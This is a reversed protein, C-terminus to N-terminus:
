RQQPCARQLLNRLMRGLPTARIEVLIQDESVAGGTDIALATIRHVGPSLKTTHLNRGTGLLGDRDSTWSVSEHELIGDERDHVSSQLIVMSGQLFEQGSKPQVVALSPAKNPNPVVLGGVEAWRTNLGDSALVRIRGNQSPALYKTDFTARTARQRIALPAWIRRGQRDFGPSYQAAYVLTDLDVDTGAWVVEEVGDLVDGPRPSSIAVQPANPTRQIRASVGTSEVLRITRIAQAKSFTVAFPVSDILSGTELEFSPAVGIRELVQGSANLAEVFVTPNAIAPSATAYRPFEFAANLRGRGPVRSLVGTLYPWAVLHGSDGTCELCEHGMFYEYTIDDVWAEPTLLGAYMIDKKTVDKARGLGLLDEVDFGTDPDLDRTNHLLGFLHGLEHAFTRQFRNPSTQTNGFAVNGPASIAAGNGSYPNEKFWGYLFKPVPDIDQRCDELANLFDVTSTDINQNWNFPPFPGLHYQSHDDPFPYIGFVFSDGSGPAILLPDPQGLTTLDTEDPATYNIISYVIEPTERCEFPVDDLQFTNNTEDDEAIANLPDLTVQLDIDDGEALDIPLTFNLSDGENGPDPTLPASIFGPANPGVVAHLAGNVFVTLFATVGAVPTVSNTVEVYVRAATHNGEVLVNSNNAPDGPDAVDYNQLAQTVEIGSVALDAAHSAPAALLAAVVALAGSGFRFRSKRM